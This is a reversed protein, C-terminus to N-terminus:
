PLKLGQPFIKAYQSLGEPTTLGQWNTAGGSIAPLGAAQTGTSSGFGFLSSLSGGAMSYAGAFGMAGSLGATLLSSGLNAATKDLYTANADMNAAQHEMGKVKENTEWNKMAVTFANDEMDAAFSDINGLSVDLASGSTMDVNGTGLAVRNHAQTEMFERRLKSKRSDLEYAEQRGREAEVQANRRMLEANAKMMEAQQRQASGAQISSSFSSLAGLAGAIIGFIMPFM